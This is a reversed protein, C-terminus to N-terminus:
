RGSAALVVVETGRKAVEITKAIAEAPLPIVKWFRPLAAEWGALLDAARRSGTAELHRVLLGRLRAADAEGDVRAIRVLEGNYRKAFEDAEDYVFATGNTMGAGFNRGTEGLVAVCGATMYECGHDGVGEVVATAGSNRVAFREGARGAAFLTGGTAGYLVTNGVIANEHSPFRSGAPPRIVIEGGGMGKGVCDNAEGELVLRMGPVCFAGFSQGASGRLQVEITGEPLGADGYRRAIEGALRAGVTRHVNRIAYALRVPTQHELAARADALLAEDFPEGPRDNREQM